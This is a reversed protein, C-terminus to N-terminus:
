ASRIVPLRRLHDTLFDILLRVRALEDRGEPWCLRVPLPDPECEALLRVLAGSALDDHVQYSLATVLGHGARAAALAADAQNVTFRAATPILLSRGGAGRLRWPAESHTGHQIRRHAQLEAPSAPSGHAAVYGPSAVIMRRVWGVRVARLTEDDFPGIRVALDFGSGHLDALRDDLELEVSIAPQQELFGVIAPAVHERGFFYPAALRIKGKPARADDGAQSLADEYDRLIARAREAFRAGHRTLVCRRASRDLLRQGLREELSAVQRSVSPTSVRLARAAASFGGRDIVAVFAALESLRDM